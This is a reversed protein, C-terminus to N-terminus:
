TRQYYFRQVLAFMLTLIVLATGSFIALDTRPIWALNNGTTGSAILLLSLPLFWSVIRRLWLRFITDPFFFLIFISFLYSLSVFFIPALLVSEWEFFVGQNVKSFLPETALIIAGSLILSAFFIRKKTM